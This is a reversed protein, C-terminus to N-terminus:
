ILSNDLIYIHLYNYKIYTLLNNSKLLLYIVLKGNVSYFTLIKIVTAVLGVLFKLEADM